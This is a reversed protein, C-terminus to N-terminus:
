RAAVEPCVRSANGALLKDVHLESLKSEYVKIMASEPILFPAHTGFTVREPSVEGILEAIGDTSEVRAVDFLLRPIRAFGALVGARPRAGLLMVTASPVRRMAEALPAVDVEAVPLRSPQTRPDELAVAVQVPLGREAALSLLRPFREDALDYGHYNPHLRVGGMGYRQHCRRLDDEWGPLTLNVSGFPVLRGGSGACTESLRANVGDLDRHFVGDFSGAWAQTIGLSEFKALLREPTDLPLRRFPWRGLSVNTDVIRWVPEGDGGGGVADSSTPSADAGSSDSEPSESERVRGGPPSVSGPPEDALAAPAFTGGLVAGKLWDRRGLESVRKARKSTM